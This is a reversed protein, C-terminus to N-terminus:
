LWEINKIKTKRVESYKNEYTKHLTALYYIDTKTNKKLGLVIVEYGKNKYIIFNLKMTNCKIDKGVICLEVNKKYFVDYLFNYNKIRPLIMKFNHHKQVDSIKLKGKEINQITKTANTGSIVKHLGLLHFLDNKSFYVKILNIEKFETEICCIKNCFSNKYDDLIELLEM